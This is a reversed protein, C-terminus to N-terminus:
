LLEFIRNDDKVVIDISEVVHNIGKNFHKAV